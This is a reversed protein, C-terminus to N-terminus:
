QTIIALIDQERMLLYTEGDVEVEEPSYKKFLIKQDVEVTFPVREGKDNLKGAGLAIISGKQPREGKTSTQLILGSVTTEEEPIPKVLIYEGIPKLNLTKSM